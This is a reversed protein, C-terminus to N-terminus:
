LDENLLDEYRKAEAEADGSVTPSTSQTTGVDDDGDDDFGAAPLDTDLDVVEVRLEAAATPTSAVEDDGGIDDLIGDGLTPQTVAVSTAAEPKAGFVREYEQPFAYEVLEHGFCIIAQQLMEDFTHLKLAQDWPVWLKRCQAESLPFVDGLTASYFVIKSRRDEEPTLIIKRGTGPAFLDDGRLHGEKLVDAITDAGTTTLFVGQKVMPKPPVKDNYRTVIAQCLAMDPTPQLKAKNKKGDIAELAADVLGVLHAPVDKKKQRGRLRIFLGPFVMAANDENLRDSSRAIGSFKTEMGSYITVPEIRFNSFDLGTPTTSNVMPRIRGDADVEPILRLETIGQGASPRCALLKTEDLCSQYFNKNKNKENLGGIQAM